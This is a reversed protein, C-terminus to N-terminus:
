KLVPLSDLLEDLNPTPVIAKMVKTLQYLSVTDLTNEDAFMLLTAIDQYAEYCDQATADCEEFVIALHEKDGLKVKRIM